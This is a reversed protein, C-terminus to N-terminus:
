MDYKECMKWVNELCCKEYIKWVVNKIFKGFMKLVVDIFNIYFGSLVGPNSGM